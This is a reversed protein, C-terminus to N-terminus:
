NKMGRVIESFVRGRDQYDKFMDFSACAPSFLVTDGTDCKEVAISVADALTGALALEVNFKCLSERIRHKDQGFL